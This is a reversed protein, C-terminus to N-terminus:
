RTATSTRGASSTTPSRSASARDRARAPATSADALDISGVPVRLDPPRRCLLIHGVIRGDREAVFHAHSEPDDWVEIWEAALTEEDDPEFGSFSPSPIM